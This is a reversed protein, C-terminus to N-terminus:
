PIVVVPRLRGVPQGPVRLDESGPDRPETGVHGDAFWARARAQHRFHVTAEIRNTGFYYFEELLPREPSAPPQFDNVQAGDTFVALGAPRDVTNMRRPLGDRPGLLLNYAYGSAAGRAKAKFLPSCPNLGPCTEVGRGGLYPWLSGAEARFDRAGERGDALWGFWYNWGDNTRGRREPFARGQHDDWYMQAALGLQRLNSGCRAGGAGSRARALAPLLLGALASIVAAVALLEVLSFGGSGGQRGVRKM